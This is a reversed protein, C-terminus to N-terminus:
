KKLNMRHFISETLEDYQNRLSQIWQLRTRYHSSLLRHDRVWYYAQQGINRRLVSNRMLRSLILGFEENSRYVFGTKGEQICEDYVIPSALAVVGNAACELFKLDSKMRNFRTDALPLLAIDAQSLLQQYQTYSCFPIYDKSSTELADFFMKDHVVTIRHPHKSLCQNLTPMIEPWDQERNLAGFFLHAPGKQYSRQPPLIAIQNPFVAVNPNYQSVFEALLKTSVQVAHCSRFALYDNQEYSERWRYPDDDIEYIILYGRRILEKQQEFSVPSVRQWFFVRNEGERDVPWSVQKTNEIARVGPKTVCFSHPESIRVRSCVKTEGLLSHLLVCQSIPKKTARVVYQLAATQIRSTLDEKYGLALSASALINQVAEKQPHEFVRPIIEFIHLGAQLFLDRIGELSFFRLHTKDLLGNETYRWKGALLGAIVSWHQVNPICAIVQGESSLFGVHDRLTRWPDRLHELVDGYIICDVREADSLIREFPTNEVDCCYVKDLHKRALKAADPFVELGIYRGFPNRRKYEKGLQGAGCGVELLLTADLPLFRLIDPNVNEYYQNPM